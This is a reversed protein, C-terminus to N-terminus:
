GALIAFDDFFSLNIIFGTRFPSSGNWGYRMRKDCVGIKMAGRVSLCISRILPFKSLSFFFTSAVLPLVFSRSIREIRKDTSSATFCPTKAYCIHRRMRKGDTM